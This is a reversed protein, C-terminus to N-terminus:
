FNTNFTFSIQKREEENEKNKIFFNKRKNLTKKQYWTTKTIEDYVEDPDRKGGIVGVSNERQTCWQLNEIRYDTKDHNIHDVINKEEPNDNHVFITAILRHVKYSRTISVERELISGDEKYEKCIRKDELSSNRYLSVKPYYGFGQSIGPIYSYEKGWKSIKGKQKVDPHSAYRYILPWIPERYHQPVQNKKCQSFYHYGGTPFILYMNPQVEPFYEEVKVGDKLNLKQM